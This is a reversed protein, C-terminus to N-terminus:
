DERPKLVKKRPKKRHDPEADAKNAKRAAYRGLARAFKLLAERDFRTVILIPMKRKRPM